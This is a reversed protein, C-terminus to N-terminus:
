LIGKFIIKRLEHEQILRGSHDFMAGFAEKSLPMSRHSRLTDNELMAAEDNDSSDYNDDPSSM